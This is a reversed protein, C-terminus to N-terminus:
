QVIEVDVQTGGARSPREPARRRESCVVLTALIAAVLWLVVSGPAWKARALVKRFEKATKGHSHLIPLDPRGLPM